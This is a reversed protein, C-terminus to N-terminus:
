DDDYLEDRTWDRPKGTPTQSRLRRMLREKARQREEPTKQDGPRLDEATDDGRGDADADAAPGLEAVGGDDATIAIREGAAAARVLEHLRDQAESDSVRRM